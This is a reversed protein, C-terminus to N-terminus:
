IFLNRIKLKKGIRGYYEQCSYESTILLFELDNDLM